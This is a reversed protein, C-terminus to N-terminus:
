VLNKVYNYLPRVLFKRTIKRLYNVKSIVKAIPPSFTYYLKIFIRGPISKSLLNDRFNKLTIVEKTMPSGYAATAIFCGSPSYPDLQFSNSNKKKEVM